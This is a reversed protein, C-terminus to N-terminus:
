WMSNTSKNEIMSLIAVFNWMCISQYWYVAVLFQWLWQQLFGPSIDDYGPKLCWVQVPQLCLQWSCKDEIKEPKLSGISMTIYFCIECRLLLVLNNAALWTRSQIMATRTCKNCLSCVWAASALLMWHCEIRMLQGCPGAWQCTASSGEHFRWVCAYWWVCVCV